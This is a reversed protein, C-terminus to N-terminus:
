DVRGRPARGVQYGQAAGTMQKLGRARTPRSRDLLYRLFYSAPTEIWAGAHPAVTALLRYSASFLTEIWAGAHPAVPVHSCDRRPVHTEIWAGAHPAVQFAKRNRCLSFTEIWAGAHPAVGASVRGEMAPAPKLGRARTPRSSIWRPSVSTILHKL